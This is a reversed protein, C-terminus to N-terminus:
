LFGAPLLSQRDLNAVHHSLGRDRKRRRLTAHLALLTADIISESSNMGTLSLYRGILHRCLSKKASTFMPDTDLISACIAGIDHIPDGRHTEEFDVGYIAETRKHVIFNRLHADGKTYRNHTALHFHFFWSALQGAYRPDAFASVRDCLNDGPVYGLLIQRSTPMKIPPPVKLQLRNLDRLM